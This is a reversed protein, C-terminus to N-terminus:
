PYTDLLFFDTPLFLDIKPQILIFLPKREERKLHDFIFQTFAGDQKQKKNAGSSDLKFLLNTKWELLDDM